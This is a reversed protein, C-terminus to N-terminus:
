FPIGNWHYLTATFVTSWISCRQKNSLEINFSNERRSVNNKFQSLSYNFDMGIKIYSRSSTSTIIFKPILAVRGKDYFRHGGLVTLQKNNTGTNTNYFSDHTKNLQFLSVGLYSKSDKNRDNVFWFLSASLIPYFLRNNEVTEGSSLGPNFGNELTWMEGTQIGNLDIKKSVFGFNMSFSIGKQKSYRFSYAIASSFVQEVLKGPGNIRNESFSLGLSLRNNRHNVVPYKAFLLTSLLIDSGVLKQNKHQLTISAYADTAIKSPATEPVSYNHQSFNSQQASVSFAM